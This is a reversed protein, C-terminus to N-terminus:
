ESCHEAARRGCVCVVAGASLCCPCGPTIALPERTSWLLLDCEACNWWESNTPFQHPNRFSHPVFRGCHFCWALNKTAPDSNVPDVQVAKDLQHLQQQYQQQPSGLLFPKPVYRKKLCRLVVQINPLQVRHWAEDEIATMNNAAFPRILDPTVFSLLELIYKAFQERSTRKQKRNAM